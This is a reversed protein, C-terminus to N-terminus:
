LGSTGFFLRLFLTYKMRMLARFDLFSYQSKIKGINTESNRVEVSNCWHCSETLEIYLIHSFNTKLFSCNEANRILGSELFLWLTWHCDSFNEKVTIMEHTASLLLCCDGVTDSHLFTGANDHKEFLPLMYALQYSWKQKCPPGM